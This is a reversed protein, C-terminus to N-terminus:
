CVLNYVAEVFQEPSHKEAYYLSASKNAEPDAKALERLSEIACCVSEVDAPVRFAYPIDSRDTLVFRGARMTEIATMMQVTIKPIRPKEM